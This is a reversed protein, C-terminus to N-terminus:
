SRSGSQKVSSHYEQFIKESLQYQFFDASPLFYHFIGLMCLTITASTM